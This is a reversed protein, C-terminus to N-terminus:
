VLFTRLRCKTRPNLNQTTLRRYYNKQIETKWEHLDSITSRFNFSASARSSAKSRRIVSFSFANFLILYSGLISDSIEKSKISIVHKQLIQCHPPPFSHFFWPRSSIPVHVFRAFNQFAFIVALIQVLSSNGDNLTMPSCMKRNAHTLVGNMEHM